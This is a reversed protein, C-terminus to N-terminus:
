PDVQVTSDGDTPRPRPSLSQSGVSAVYLATMHDPFKQASQPTREQTGQQPLTILGHTWFSQYWSTVFYPVHRTNRNRVHFNAVDYRSVHSFWRITYYIHQIALSAITLPSCGSLSSSSFCLLSRFLRRSTFCLLLIYFSVDGLRRWEGDTLKM